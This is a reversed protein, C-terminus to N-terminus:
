KRWAKDVSSHRNMLLIQQIAHLASLQVSIRFLCCRSQIKNFASRPGPMETGHAHHGVQCTCSGVFGVIWCANCLPVHMRSGQEYARVLQVSDAARYSWYLMYMGDAHCSRRADSRCAGINGSVEHSEKGNKTNTNKTM